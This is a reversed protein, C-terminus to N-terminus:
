RPPLDDVPELRFPFWIPAAYFDMHFGQCQEFYEEKDKQHVPKQTAPHVGCQTFMGSNMIHVQSADPVADRFGAREGDRGYTSWVRRKEETSAVFTTPYAVQGTATM